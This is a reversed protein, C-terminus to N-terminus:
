RHQSIRSADVVGASRPLNPPSETPTSRHTPDDVVHISTESGGDVAEGVSYSSCQGICGAARRDIAMAESAIRDDLSEVETTGEDIDVLAVGVILEPCENRREGM